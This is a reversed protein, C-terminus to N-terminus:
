FVNITPVLQNSLLWYNSAPQRTVLVLAHLLGLVLGGFPRTGLSRDRPQNVSMKSTPSTELLM